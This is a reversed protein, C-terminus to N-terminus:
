PVKHSGQSLPTCVISSARQYSQNELARVARLVCEARREKRQQQLVASTALLRACLAMALATLGNALICPDRCDSAPDTGVLAAPAGSARTTAGPPPNPAAVAARAVGNGGVVSRRADARMSTRARAPPALPLPSCCCCSPACPGAAGEAAGVLAASGGTPAAAAAAAAGADDAAASMSPGEVSGPTM